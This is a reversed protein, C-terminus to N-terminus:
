IHCEHHSAVYNHFMFYVPNLPYRGLRQDKTERYNNSVILCFSEISRFVNYDCLLMPWHMRFHIFTGCVLMFNLIYTCIM